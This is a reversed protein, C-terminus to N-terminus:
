SYYITASEGASIAFLLAISTFSKRRRLADDTRKNKEQCSVEIELGEETEEEEIIEEGESEGHSFHFRYRIKEEKKREAIVSLSASGGGFM